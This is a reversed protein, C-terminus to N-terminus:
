VIRGEVALFPVVRGDPLVRGHRYTQVRNYLQEMLEPEPMIGRRCSDAIAAPRLMEAQTTGSIGNGQVGGSCVQREGYRYAKIGTVCMSQGSDKLTLLGLGDGVAVASRLISGYGVENVFLSDTDVYFVNGWGAARIANLLKVRGYSNIFAAAAPVADYSFGNTVDRQCIGAISRYRAPTGDALSGWWEGYPPVYGANYVNEWRRYKQGLKGSLSVLLRKVLNCAVTDGMEEYGCRLMYLIDAYKSAIKAMRYLCCSHINRIRGYKSADQLEPGALTTRFVGVPWVVIGNHPVPYAEEKTEITVDAIANLPFGHELYEEYNEAPNSVSLAAPLACSSMISPYMSRFDLHWVPTEIEGIRFAECRGGMYAKAELDLAPKYTHCQVPYTLYSTRWGHLAQSGATCKLSGLKAAIVVDIVTQMTTILAATEATTNRSSEGIDVGYNRLDIWTFKCPKEPFRFQCISPPDEAVIFGSLIDRMRRMYNTSLRQPLNGNSEQMAQVRETAANTARYDGSIITIGEHEIQEWLRLLNWQRVCQSSVIWTCITSQALDSVLQWFEYENNCSVSAIHRLKGHELGMWTFNVAQLLEVWHRSKSNGRERTAITSVFIMRGPM